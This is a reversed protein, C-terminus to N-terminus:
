KNHDNSEGKKNYYNAVTKEITAKDEKVAVIAGGNSLLITLDTSSKKIAYINPLLITIPTDDQTTLEIFM